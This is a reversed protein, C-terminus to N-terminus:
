DHPFNIKQSAAETKGGALFPHIMSALMAQSAYIMFILWDIETLEKFSFAWADWSRKNFAISMRCLLLNMVWQGLKGPPEKPSQLHEDGCRPHLVQMPAKAKLLGKEFAFFVSSGAQFSLPLFSESIFCLSRIPM